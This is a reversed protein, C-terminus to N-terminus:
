ETCPIILPFILWCGQCDKGHQDKTWSNVVAATENQLWLFTSQMRQLTIASEAQSSTAPHELDWLKPLVWHWLVWVRLKKAVWCGWAYIPIAADGVTSHPFNDVVLAYCNNFLVPSLLVRWIWYAIPLIIKTKQYKFLMVSFDFYQFVIQGNIPSNM